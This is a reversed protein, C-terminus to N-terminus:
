QEEGRENCLYFTRSEVSVSGDKQVEATRNIYIKYGNSYIIRVLGSALVSHEVIVEKSVTTYFDRLKQDLSKIEKTWYDASASYYCTYQTDSLISMDGTIIRWSPNAGSELMDFLADEYNSAENLPKVSYPVIGHLVMGVFPIEYDMFGVKSSNTPTNIFADGYKLAYANTGDLKLLFGEDRLAQLSECLYQKSDERSVKSNMDFDSYLLSAADKLLLTNGNYKKYAKALGLAIKKYSLPSILFSKLENKLQGTASNYTAYFAYEKNIAKAIDTNSKIGNGSKAVRQISFAPYVFSENLISNRQEDSGLSSVEKLRLPAKGDVGENFMGEYNVHIQREDMNAVWNQVSTYDSAALASEVEVGCINRNGSLAGVINVDQYWESGNETPIIGGTSVLYSRYYEAMGSYSARTDYLLHYRVVYPQETICQSYVYNKTDIKQDASVIGRVRYYFWPAAMNNVYTQNSRLVDVGSIADGSEVIAFVSANGSKIGFVPFASEALREMETQKSESEDDGYFVIRMEDKETSTSNNNILTGGGDAFVMYGEDTIANAGFAPLVSVRNLYYDSPENIEAIDVTVMLDAYDLSYKITIVFNPTTSSLEGLVGLKKEEEQVDNNTYGLQKCVKEINDTQIYTAAPNLVYYSGDESKNYSAKMRGWNSNSLKKEEIAKQAANEIEKYKEVSIYQFIVRSEMDTGFAYRVSLIDDNVKATVQNKQEGDYCEPYSTVKVAAHDDRYYDVILQSYAYKKQEDTYNDIEESYIAENSYWVQSTRKDILAIDYSDGLYLEAYENSLMKKMRLRVNEAENVTNVLLVNESIFGNTTQSFDSVPLSKNGSSCASLLAMLLLMSSLTMIRGLKTRLM